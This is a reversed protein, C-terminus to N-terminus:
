NMEEEDEQVRAETADAEMEHQQRQNRMRQALDAACQALAAAEDRDRQEITRADPPSGPAAEQEPEPDGGWCSSDPNLAQPGHSSMAPGSGPVEFTVISSANTAEPDSSRTTALRVSQSAFITQGALSEVTDAVVIDNQEPGVLTRSSTPGGAAASSSATGEPARAAAQRIARMSRIGAEVRALESEEVPIKNDNQRRAM